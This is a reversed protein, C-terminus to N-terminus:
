LHLYELHSHLSVNTDIGNINSETQPLHQPTPLSRICNLFTSINWGLLVTPPLRAPLSAPPSVWFPFQGKLNQLQTSKTFRDELIHQGHM